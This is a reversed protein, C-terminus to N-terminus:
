RTSRVSILDPEYEFGEPLRTASGFLRLQNDM